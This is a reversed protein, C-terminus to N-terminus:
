DPRAAPDDAMACVTRLIEARAAAVDVKHTRLMADATECMMEVYQPPVRVTYLATGAARNRPALPAGLTVEPYTARTLEEATSRILPWDSDYVRLAVATLSVSRATKRREIPGRRGTDQAICASCGGSSTYRWAAHGRRCPTGTEYYHLNQAKAEARSIKVM